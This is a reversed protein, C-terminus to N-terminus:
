YLNFSLEIKKRFNEEFVPRFLIRHHCTTFKVIMFSFHLIVVKRIVILPQPNGTINSAIDSIRRQPYICESLKNITRPIYDINESKSAINVNFTEMIHKRLVSVLAIETSKTRNFDLHPLGTTELDLIVYSNIYKHEMDGLATLNKPKVM